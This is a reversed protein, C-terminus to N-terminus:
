LRGKMSIAGFGDQYMGEMGEATMQGVMVNCQGERGRDSLKVTVVEFFFMRDTETANPLDDKNDAWNIVGLAAMPAGIVMAMLNFASSGEIGSTSKSLNAGWASHFENNQYKVLAPEAGAVM